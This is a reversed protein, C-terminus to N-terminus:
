KWGSRRAKELSDFLGRALSMLGHDTIRGGQLLRHASDLTRRVDAQGHVRHIRAEDEVWRALSELAFDRKEGRHFLRAMARVYEMSSRDNGERTPRATGFRRCVAAWVFLCLVLLQLFPCFIISRSVHSMVSTARGFGHHYEDVALTGHGLHPAILNLFLRAHDGKRLSQNSFLFPDAVAIVRGRGESVVAILGGSRDSAHFVVEPRSAAFGYPSTRSLTEDGSAYPGPQLRYPHRPRTMPATTFVGEIGFFSVFPGAPASSLILTGGQQVWKRIVELEGPDPGLEPQLIALVTLGRELGAMPREWRKVPVGLEKLWLYLAKYGHPGASYTTPRGPGKEGTLRTELLLLGYVGLFLVIWFTLMKWSRSSGGTM